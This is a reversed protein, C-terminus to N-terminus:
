GIWVVAVPRGARMESTVYCWRKSGEWTHRTLRLGVGKAELGAGFADMIFREAQTRTLRLSSRFAGPFYQSEDAMCRGDIQAHMFIRTNRPLAKIYALADAKSAAVTVVGTDRAASM